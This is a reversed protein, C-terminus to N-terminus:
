QTEAPERVLLTEGTKVDRLTQRVGSPWLIEVQELKERMGVGFHLGFDSSSAYGGATSLHNTQNGIRVIAGIGDRNSRTGTLKVILGKNGAPTVNRWFEPADGLSTVVVDIRGDQDFDGFACGRHARVAQTFAAGATESADEFRGEGLNRFIANHQKYETAEFAAVSDNVHSNASFIDKLGDNDFDVMGVGWGSYRRSLRGMQSRLSFDTFSGGGRNKFVPFTEGALATLVIDPLGDNDLDRFDAGMSSMETGTDPLAVGSEFAVEEFRGNGLNHFLFNPSKDNTVFLDAFGDGDYDAVAVAMGKGKSKKIGSSESVDAFRGGGLNRYLQNSTGEFLRPHCYSRTKRAQDGCFTNFSPDWRVYNVIFLDLLGDNDFDLWAAGVSWESSTIGSKVTVDEFTQNGRNRYLLNQRVGAVFFDPNGDNDFDAVSAAMSYGAGQLGASETVDRFKFKGLNRYLRNWHRPGEKVLSPMEAGNTLFVDTLGDGDYDFTAVGGAMTEPLHKQTTPSNDLVFKIDGTVTAGEFRIPAVTTQARVWVSTWITPGLVCLFCTFCTLVSKSRKRM